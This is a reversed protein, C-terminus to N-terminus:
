EQGPNLVCRFGVKETRKGPHMMARYASQFTRKHGWWAGGRVVRMRGDAPGTPNVWVGPQYYQPDYWDEVWESVNGALDFVGFVNPQTKGVSFTRRTKMTGTYPAHGEYSDGWPYLTTSGARYAYEWQAETPLSKGIRECYRSAQAWTVQEVPCDPCRTFRSPRSRMVERYEDQTVEYKDMYFSDVVVEHAPGQNRPSSPNDSGMVFRGAPILVMKERGEKSNARAQFLKDGADELLLQVSLPIDYHIFREMGSSSQRSISGVVEGSEVNVLRLNMLMNKRISGLTGVVMFDVGLVKGIKVACDSESCIGSSQLNQELLLKDLNKREVIDVSGSHRMESLVADSILAAQSGPVGEGKLTAVSVRPLAWASVTLLFAFVVLINTNKGM